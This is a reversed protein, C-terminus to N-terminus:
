YKARSIGTYKEPWAPTYPSARTTTTRGSVRGALGRPVGYQAMLLDYVTAVIVTEGNATKIKDHGSRGRRDHPGDGFNDLRVMLVEDAARSIYSRSRHGLWGHRGEDALEVQGKAKGWRFGVSGMPM